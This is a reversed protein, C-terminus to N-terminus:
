AFECNYSLVYILEVTIESCCCIRMLIAPFFLFCFIFAAFRVLVKVFHERVVSLLIEELINCVRNRFCFGVTILMFIRIRM